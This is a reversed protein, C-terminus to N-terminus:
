LKVFTTISHYLTFYYYFVLPVRTSDLPVREVRTSHSKFVVPVRIFGSHSLFTVLTPDLRVLYFQPFDLLVFTSSLSCSHFRTSNFSIATSCAHFRTSCSHLLLLRTSNLLVTHFQTSGLLALTSGFPVLTSCYPLHSCLRTVLM